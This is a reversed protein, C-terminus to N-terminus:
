LAQNDRYVGKKYKLFDMFGELMYRLRLMRNPLIIIHVIPRIAIMLVFRVRFKIPTYQKLLLKLCDRTQYYERIPAGKKIIFKGIHVAADGLTHTFVDDKSLCCLLGAKQFRWCLDWDAMDLFIEENWFGIHELNEYTTLMASTMIVEATYINDYLQKRLHCSITKGSNTETYAPGICGIRYIKKLLEFREILKNILNNSITSDQDLFLIYESSKPIEHRLCKNFAISIGMNKMNAIYTINPFKNFLSGNDVNPTNDAIVVNTINKSLELINRVMQKNPYFITIIACVKGVPIM